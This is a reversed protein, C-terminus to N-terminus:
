LVEQFPYMHKKIAMHMACAALLSIVMVPLFFGGFFAAFSPLLLVDGMGICAIMQYKKATVRYLIEAGILIILTASLFTNHQAMLGRVSSDMMGDLMWYVSPSFLSFALGGFVILIGVAFCPLYPISTYSPVLELDMEELDQKQKRLGLEIFGSLIFFIRFLGGYLLVEFGYIEWPRSSCILLGISLIFLYRLDITRFEFDEIVMRVFLFMTGSLFVFCFPVDTDLLNALLIAFIGALILQLWKNKLYHASITHAM